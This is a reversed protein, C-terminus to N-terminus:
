PVLLARVRALARHARMKVADESAGVIAAIERYKLGHYRSLVLVERDELSLARLARRLLAKRERRELQDLSSPRPDAAEPLPDAFVESTRQGSRLIDVCLNRAITFAWTTFPAGPRFVARDRYIRLFTEQLVDEARSPDALLRRAFNYIARAHRQYLAGLADHHGAQLRAM